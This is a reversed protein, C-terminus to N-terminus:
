WEGNLFSDKLKWKEWVEICHDFAEKFEGVPKQIYEEELLLQPESVVELCGIIDPNM